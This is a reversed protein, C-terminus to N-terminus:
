HRPAPHERLWKRVPSNDSYTGTRWNGRASLGTSLTWWYQGTLLNTHGYGTVGNPCVIRINGYYDISWERGFADISRKPYHSTYSEDYQPSSQRSQNDGNNYIHGVVNGHNDLILQAHANGTALAFAAVAMLARM